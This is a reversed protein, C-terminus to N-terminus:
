CGEVCVGDDLIGGEEEVEQGNRRTSRIAAPRLGGLGPLLGQVDECADEIMM